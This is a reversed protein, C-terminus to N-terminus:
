LNLQGRGPETDSELSYGLEEFYGEGYFVLLEAGIAVPKYTYYQIGGTHIYTLYLTDLYLRTLTGNNPILQM